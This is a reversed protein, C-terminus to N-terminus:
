SRLAAKLSQRLTAVLAAGRKVQEPSPGRLLEKHKEEVLAYAAHHQTPQVKRRPEEFRAPATAPRGSGGSGREEGRSSFDFDDGAADRARSTTVLSSCPEKRKDKQPREIPAPREDRTSAAPSPPQPLSSSVGASQKAQGRGKPASSRQRRTGQKSITIICGRSHTEHGILGLEKLKHLYTRATAKKVLCQRAVEELTTSVKGHPPVFWRLLQLFRFIDGKLEDLLQVDNMMVEYPICESPPTCRDYAQEFDSKPTTALPSAENGNFM